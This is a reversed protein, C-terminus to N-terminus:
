VKDYGELHGDAVVIRYIQGYSGNKDTLKRAVFPLVTKLSLYLHRKGLIPGAIYRHSDLRDQEEHTLNLFNFDIEPLSHDTQDNSLLASTLHELEAVVLLAFLLSSNNVICDILDQDRTDTDSHRHLPHSNIWSSIRERTLLKKVTASCLFRKRDYNKNEELHQLLLERLSSSSDLHPTSASREM